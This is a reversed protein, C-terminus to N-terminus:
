VRLLWAARRRPGAHSRTIQGVEVLLRAAGSPRHRAPGVPHHFCRFIV